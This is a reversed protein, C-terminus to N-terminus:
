KIIANIYDQLGMVQDSLERSTKDLEGLTIACEKLIESSADVRSTPIPTDPMTNSPCVSLSNDVVATFSDVATNSKETQKETEKKREVYRIEGKTVKTQLQKELVRIKESNELEVKLTETKARQYGRHEIYSVSLGLCTLALVWAWVRWNILFREM